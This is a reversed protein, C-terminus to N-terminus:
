MCCCMCMSTTAQLSTTYKTVRTNTVQATAIPQM